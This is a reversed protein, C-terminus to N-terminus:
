KKNIKKLKKPEELLIEILEEILEEQVEKITRLRLRSMNILRSM